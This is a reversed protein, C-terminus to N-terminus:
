LKEFEDFITLLGIIVPKRNVADFGKNKDQHAVTPSIKINDAVEKPKRNPIDTIYALWTQISKKHSPIIPIKPFVPLFNNLLLCKPM